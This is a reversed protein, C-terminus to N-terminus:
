WIRLSPFKKMSLSDNWGDETILYSGINISDLSRLIGEYSCANRFGNQKREIINFGKEMTNIHPDLNIEDHRNIVSKINPM